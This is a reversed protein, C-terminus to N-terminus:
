ELSPIPNHGVFFFKMSCVVLKTVQVTTRRIAALNLGSIIGTDPKAKELIAFM